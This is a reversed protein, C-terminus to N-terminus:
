GLPYALRDLRIPPADACGPGAIEAVLPPIPLSIGFTQAYGKAYTALLPWPRPLNASQRTGWHFIMPRGAFRGALKDIESGDPNFALLHRRCPGYQAEVEIAFAGGKGIKTRYGADGAAIALELAIGAVDAQRRFEPQVSRLAFAAAVLILAALYAKPIPM